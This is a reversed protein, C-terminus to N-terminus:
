LRIRVRSGSVNSLRPTSSPVDLAYRPYWCHSRPRSLNLIALFRFLQSYKGFTSRSKQISVLEAHVAAVASLVVFARLTLSVM